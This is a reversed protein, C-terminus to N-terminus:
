FMARLMTPRHCPQHLDSYFTVHLRDTVFDVAVISFIPLCYFFPTLYLRSQTLVGVQSSLFIFYLNSLLIMIGFKHLMMYISTFLGHVDVGGSSDGSVDDSNIPLYDLVATQSPCAGAHTTSCSSSEKLAFFFIGRM